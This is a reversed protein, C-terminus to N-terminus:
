TFTGLRRSLHDDNQPSAYASTPRDEHDTRCPLALPGHELRNLVGPLWHDHWDIPATASAAPTEYAARWAWWLATLEEVVEPHKAWCAPLKRALPYRGRLWGVWDALHRWLDTHDQDSLNRWCYITPMTTTPIPPTSAGTPDPRQDELRTQLDAYTDTVDSALQRAPPRRVDAAGVLV